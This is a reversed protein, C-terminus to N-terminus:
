LYRPPLRPLIISVPEDLHLITFRTRIEKFWCILLKWDPVATQYHISIQRTLDAAIEFLM